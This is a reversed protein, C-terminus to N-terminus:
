SLKNKLKRVKREANKKNIAMVTVGDIIFERIGRKNLNEQYRQDLIKKRKAEREPDYVYNEGYGLDGGGITALMGMMLMMKSTERM